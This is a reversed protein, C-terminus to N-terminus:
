FCREKGKLSAEMIFTNFRFSELYVSKLPIIQQGVFPTDAMIWRYADEKDCPYGGRTKEITLIFNSKESSSRLLSNCANTKILCARFHQEMDGLTYESRSKLLRDPPIDTSTLIGNMEFVFKEIPIDKNLIILSISKIEGGKIMTHCTDMFNAIYGKVAPHEAIYVPIDFKKYLRFIKKPYIDRQYLIQHIWTELFDCLINIIDQHILRQEDLENM